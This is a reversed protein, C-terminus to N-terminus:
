APWFDQWRQSDNLYLARLNCIGDATDRYWTMGRLECRRNVILDAAKEIPGSGVHFGQEYLDAYSLGDHFIGDQNNLIFAKFDTIADRSKALRLRGRLRTLREIVLDIEGFWLLDKFTMYCAALYDNDLEARAPRLARYLNRRLHFWDLVYRADFFHTQQITRLAADGDSLFILHQARELGQREAELYLEEGLRESGQFSCVYVAEKLQHRNKGIKVPGQHVLGVKGEMKLRERSNIWAGDAEIYLVEPGEPQRGVPEPAHWAAEIEEERQAIARQGHRDLIHEIQRDSISLKMTEAMVQSVQRYPLRIGLECVIKELGISTQRYAELKLKQDLPFFGAEV